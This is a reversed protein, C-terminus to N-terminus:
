FAESVSHQAETWAREPEPIPVCLCWTWRCADLPILTHANCQQQAGLSLKAQALKGGQAAWALSPKACGKPSHGTLFKPLAVRHTSPFTFPSNEPLLGHWAQPRQSSLHGRGQNVEWNLCASLCIESWIYSVCQMKYDLTKATRNEAARSAVSCWPENHQRELLKWWAWWKNVSQTEPQQIEESIVWHQKMFSLFLM